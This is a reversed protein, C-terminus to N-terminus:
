GIARRQESTPEASRGEVLNIVRTAAFKMNSCTATEGAACACNGGYVTACILHAAQEVRSRQPKTKRPRKM